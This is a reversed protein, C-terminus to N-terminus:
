VGMVERVVGRLRDAVENLLRDGVPHGLTDNVAKFRDLDLYLVALSQGRRTRREIAM